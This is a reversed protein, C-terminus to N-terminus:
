YNKYGTTLDNIYLGLVGGTTIDAGFGNKGQMTGLGLGYVKILDNENIKTVDISKDIGVQVNSDFTNPDSCNIGGVDGNEDKPFNSVSCTFILSKEKYSNPSKYIDAVTVHQSENEFKAIIQQPSLTPKPTATPEDTPTPTDTLSNSDSSTVTQTSNNTTPSSHSVLEGVFLLCIFLLIKYGRTLSYNWKSKVLKWFLPLVSLGALISFIGGVPNTSFLILGEFIFGIGFIWGLITYGKNIRKTKVENTKM